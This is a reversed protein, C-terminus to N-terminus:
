RKFLSTSAKGRLEMVAAEMGASAANFGNRWDAPKCTKPMLDLLEWLAFSFSLSRVQRRQTRPWRTTTSTAVRSRSSYMAPLPITPMAGLSKMFLMPRSPTSSNTRAPRFNQCAVVPGPSRNHVGALMTTNSVTSPSSQTPRRKAM